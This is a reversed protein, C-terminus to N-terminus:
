KIWETARWYADDTDDAFTIVGTINVAGDLKAARRLMCNACLLGGDAPNIRLWQSKPILLSMAMATDYDAGCDM